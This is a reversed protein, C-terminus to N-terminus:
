ANKPPRGPKPRNELAEIRETLKRIHERQNVVQFCVEELDFKALRAVTAELEKIRAALAISV